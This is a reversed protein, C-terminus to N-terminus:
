NYQRLQSYPYLSSHGDSWNIGLAYNGVPNMSLPHIDDPISAPDILLEDSFEDRNLASQCALRLTKPNIILEPLDNFQIIIGEKPVFGLKPLSLDGAALRDVETVVTEAFDSFLAKISSESDSEVFPVGTDGAQSIATTIPIALTNEFGFEDVLRKLAGKGFLYQKESQENAQFYSMNEVAGIVPVQLRDFMEIGKVVDIFSIHQPTTVIIAATLPIIQCLTLQIDGTGPPMDIILYDCDGWATLLLFQSIIQSVMPGRLIAPQEATDEQSYGFSMLKVGDVMKPQIIDDQVGLSQNTQVMTPLSPGYVDADFLGVNYGAQKLSYALNVAVTSKGVGGKCSSVAIIHKVGALNEQKADMITNNKPKVVINVAVDAVDPIQKLMVVSLQKLNREIGTNKETLEIDVVVNNKDINIHKVLDLECITKESGPYVIKELQNRVLGETIKKM